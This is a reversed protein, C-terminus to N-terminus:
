IKKKVVFCLCVVQLCIKQREQEHKFQKMTGNAFPIKPFKQFLFTHIMKVKTTFMVSYKVETIYDQQEYDCVCVCVCKIM